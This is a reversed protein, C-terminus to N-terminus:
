QVHVGQLKLVPLPVCHPCLGKKRWHSSPLRSKDLFPCGSSSLSPGHKPPHVHLFAPNGLASGVQRPDRPAASLGGRLWGGPVSVTSGSGTSGCRARPPTTPPCVSSWRHCMQSTRTTQLVLPQAQSRACGAEYGQEPLAAFGLPWQSEPKQAQVPPPQGPLPPLHTCPRM